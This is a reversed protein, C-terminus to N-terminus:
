KKWIQWWKKTKYKQLEKELDAVCVELCEVEKELCKKDIIIKEIYDKLSGHCEHQHVFCILDTINWGTLKSWTSYAEKIVEQNANFSMRQQLRHNAVIEEMHRYESLPITVTKNDEEM